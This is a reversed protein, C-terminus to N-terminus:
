TISITPKYIYPNPYGRNIFDNDDLNNYRFHCSWRIESNKKMNGSKHVLFSSFILIDGCELKVPIFLSDDIDSITNFGGVVKDTILGDKHSKPAIMLPGNLDTIDILPVWVVLSDLSGLMSGWDQHPPTKYYFEKKSLRPHNFFLVPRTCINPSSLGQKKLENILTDDVSLKYLNILGQQITKGCNIFIDHQENFLRFMNSEFYEEKNNYKFHKFQKKFIDKANKQLSIIVEKSFFNKKIIYGDNKLSSM